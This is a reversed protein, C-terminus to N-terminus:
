DMLSGWWARTKESSFDPFSSNGPWIIGVYITGDKKRLFHDGAIGEKYVWYDNDVKPAPDVIEIAHFGQQRLDSILRHPDPFGKEDWTFILNRDMHATDFFIADCPIRRHRFNDAVFRITSEPYYVASGQIYGISWLPPLEARGVLETFRTIVQKPHPGYFFYYNMEGGDAGFSYYDAAEVGM